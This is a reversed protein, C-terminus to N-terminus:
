DTEGGGDETTEETTEAPTEEPTDGTAPGPDFRKLEDPVRKM